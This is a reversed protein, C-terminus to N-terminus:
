QDRTQYLLPSVTLYDPSAFHLPLEPEEAASNCLGIAPGCDVLGMSYKPGVQLVLGRVATSTRILKVSTTVRNINRSGGESLARPTLAPCSVSSAM